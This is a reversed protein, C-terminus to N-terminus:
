KGKLIEFLEYKNGSFLLKGNEYVEILTLERKKYSNGQGEFDDVVIRDETHRLYNVIRGIKETHKPPTGKVGTTSFSLNSM